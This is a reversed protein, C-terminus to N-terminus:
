GPAMNGSTMTSESRVFGNKPHTSLCCDQLHTSGQDKDQLRTTGINIQFLQIRFRVGYIELYEQQLKCIQGEVDIEEEKQMQRQRKSYGYAGLEQNASPSFLKANSATM